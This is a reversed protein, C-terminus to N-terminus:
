ETGVTLDCHLDTLTKQVFENPVDIALTLLGLTQAIAVSVRLSDIKSTSTSTSTSTSLSDIVETSFVIGLPTVAALVSLENIGVGFNSVFIGVNHRSQIERAIELVPGVAVECNLLVSLSISPIRERLQEMIEPMLSDKLWFQSPLNMVVHTVSHSGNEFGTLNTVLLNVLETSNLSRMATELEVYQGWRLGTDTDVISRTSIETLKGLADEVQPLNGKAPDAYSVNGGLDEVVIGGGVQKAQYMLSDALKMAETVPESARWLAVGISCRVEVSNGASSVFTGDVAEALRHAVMHAEASSNVNHAFIIFEDGGLRAVFDTPRLNATLQQAVHVLLEDGVDHGLTDNVAKFHDLDLYAVARTANNGALKSNHIAIDLGRRNPLGTLVDHTSRYFLEARAREQRFIKPLILAATLLSQVAEDSLSSATPLVFITRVAFETMGATDFAAFHRAGAVAFTQSDPHLEFMDDANVLSPMQYCMGQVDISQARIAGLASLSAPAGEPIVWNDPILKGDRVWWTQYGWWGFKKVTENLLESIIERSHDLYGAEVRLESPVEDDSYYNSMEGGKAKEVM